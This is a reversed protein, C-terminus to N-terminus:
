RREKILNVALEILHNIKSDPLEPFQEKLIRFAESRRIENTLKEDEHTGTMEAVLQIIEVALPVYKLASVVVKLVRPFWRLVTLWVAM